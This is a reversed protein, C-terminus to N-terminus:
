SAAIWNIAFCGTNQYDRVIRAAVILREATDVAVRCVVTDGDFLWYNGQSNQSLVLGERMKGLCMDESKLIMQKM